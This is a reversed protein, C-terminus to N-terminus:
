KGGSSPEGFVFQKDAELAEALPATAEIARLVAQVVPPVTTRDNTEHAWRDAAANMSACTSCTCTSRTFLHSRDSTEDVVSMSPPTAEGGVLDHWLDATFTDATPLSATDTPSGMPAQPVTCTRQDSPVFVQLGCHWGPAVHVVDPVPRWKTCRTCQVWREDM